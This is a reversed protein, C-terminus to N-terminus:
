IYFHPRLFMSHCIKLNREDGEIKQYAISSNELLLLFALILKRNFGLLGM